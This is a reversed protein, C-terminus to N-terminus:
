SLSFQIKKSSEISKDMSYQMQNTQHKVNMKIQYYYITFVEVAIRISDNAVFHQKSKSEIKSRISTNIGTLQTSHALLM